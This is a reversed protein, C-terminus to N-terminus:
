ESVKRFVTGRIYFGDKNVEGVVVDGRGSCVYPEMEKKFREVDTTGAADGNLLNFVGIESYKADTPLVSLV